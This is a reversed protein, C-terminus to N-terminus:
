KSLTKCLKKVNKSSSLAYFYMGRDTVFDECYENYIHDTLSSIRKIKEDIDRDNVSGYVGVTINCGSNHLESWDMIQVGEYPNHTM